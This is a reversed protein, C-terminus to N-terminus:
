TKELPMSIGIDFVLQPLGVTHIHPMSFLITPKIHWAMPVGKSKSWDKGIEYSFSALLRNEGGLARKQVNGANDVAFTPGDNFRRLYGLGLFFGSKFGSNKTKRLAIEPLIFVAYHNKPHRYFGLNATAFLLKEKTRVLEGGKNKEKFKLRLPYEIGGKLGYHVFYESYYSVTFAPPPIQQSIGMPLLLCLNIALLFIFRM